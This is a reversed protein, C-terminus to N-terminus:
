LFRIRESLFFNCSKECTSGRYTFYVTKNERNINEYCDSDRKVQNYNRLIEVHKLFM